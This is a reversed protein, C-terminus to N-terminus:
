EGDGIDIDESMGLDRLAVKQVNVEPGRDKTVVWYSLVYRAPKAEPVGVANGHVFFRYATFGHGSAISCQRVTLGPGAALNMGARDQVVWGAAVLAADFKQRAEPEPIPPM